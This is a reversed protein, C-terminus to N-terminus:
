VHHPHGKFGEWISAASDPVGRVVPYLPLHIGEGFLGLEGRGKMLCCKIRWGADEGTIAM